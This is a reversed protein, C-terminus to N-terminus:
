PAIRWHIDATAIVWVTEDCDLNPGPSMVRLLVAGAPVPYWDPPAGITTGQMETAIVTGIDNFWALQCRPHGTPFVNGTESDRLVVRVRRAYDPVYVVVPSAVDDIDVLQSQTLSLEMSDASVEGDDPAISAQVTPLVADSLGFLFSGAFVEVYSGCVVLSAGQMPWHALLRQAGGSGMGWAIQVFLPIVSGLAVPADRRPPAQPTAQQGASYGFMQSAFVPTSTNVTTAGNLLPPSGDHREARGLTIRWARAFSEGTEMKVLPTENGFGLQSNNQLPIRESLRSRALLHAPMPLM